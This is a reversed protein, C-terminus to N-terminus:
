DLYLKMGEHTPKFGLRQYFLIAESRQKNTTLQIISAGQNKGYRIVENIMEEGVGRRRYDDKIRVAEIQLRTSGTFTLSPILTSHCTGIIINDLEAVMLYQNPDNNIKYFSELYRSDLPQTLCERSKGLEDNSLLTVIDTLDDVTARRYKLELNNM